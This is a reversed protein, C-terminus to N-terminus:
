MGLLLNENGKQYQSGPSIEVGCMEELSNLFYLEKPLLILFFESDEQCFWNRYAAVVALLFDCLAYCLIDLTWTHWTKIPSFLIRGFHGFINNSLCNLLKSVINLFLKQFLNRVYDFM